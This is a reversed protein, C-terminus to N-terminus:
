TRKSNAEKDLLKGADEIWQKAMTEGVGPIASLVEPEAAALMTISKIGKSFIMEAM